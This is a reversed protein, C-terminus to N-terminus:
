LIADFSQCLALNIGRPDGLATRASFSLSPRQNRSRINLNFPHATRQYNAVRLRRL